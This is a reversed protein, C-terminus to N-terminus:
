YSASLGLNAWIKLKSFLFSSCFANKIRWDSIPSQAGWPLLTVSHLQWINVAWSKLASAYIISIINRPSRDFYKQCISYCESLSCNPAVTEKTGNFMWINWMNKNKNALCLFVMAVASYPMSIFCIKSGTHQRNPTLHCHLYKCPLYM